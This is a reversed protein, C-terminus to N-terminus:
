AACKLHSIMRHATRLSRVFLLDDLSLSWAAAVSPTSNEM